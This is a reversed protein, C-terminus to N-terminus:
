LNEKVTEIIKEESLNYLDLAECPKMHPVFGSIAYSKLNNFKAMLKQGISGEFVAEEFMYAKSYSNIIEYISDDIPFIKSLHLFSCCLKEASTSAISAEKGYAIILMDSNRNTYIFDSDNNLSAAECGRPYRVCVLGDDQNIARNLCSKLENYSSPSYITVNPISTLFSIDFLGQHTEGDEGAIGANGVCIM